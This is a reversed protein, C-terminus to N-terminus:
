ENENNKNKILELKNEAEKYTRYTWGKMGWDENSPCSEWPEVERGAIKMSKNKIIQFIEYCIVKDTDEDYVESIAFNSDNYLVNHIYGNKKYTSKLKRM